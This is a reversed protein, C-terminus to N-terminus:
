VSRRDSFTLFKGHEARLCPSQTIQARFMDQQLLPDAPAIHRPVLNGIIQAVARQNLQVQGLFGTRM